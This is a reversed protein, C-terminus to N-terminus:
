LCHRFNKRKTNTEYASHLYRYNEFIGEAALKKTVIDMTGIQSEAYHWIELEKDSLIDIEAKM